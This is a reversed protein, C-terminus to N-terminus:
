KCKVTIHTRTHGVLMVRIAAGTLRHCSRGFLFCLEDFAGQLCYHRISACHDLPTNFFCLTTSSCRSGRRCPNGVMPELTARSLCQGGEERHALQPDRLVHTVERDHAHCSRDTGPTEDAQEAVRGVLDLADNNWRYHM